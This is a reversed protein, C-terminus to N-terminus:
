ILPIELEVYIANNRKQSIKKVLMGILKENNNVSSIAGKSQLRDSSSKHLSHIFLVRFKEESYKLISEIENNNYKAKELEKKDLPKFHFFYEFDHGDTLDGAIRKYNSICIKGLILNNLGYIDSSTFIGYDIISSDGFKTSAIAHDEIKSEIKLYLKLSQPSM